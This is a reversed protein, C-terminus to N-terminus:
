VVKWKFESLYRSVIWGEEHSRVNVVREKETCWGVQDCKYYVQYVGSKTRELAVDRSLALQNIEYLKQGIKIWGDELTKFADDFLPYVGDIMDSFGKNELLIGNPYGPEKYYGGSIDSFNLQGATLGQHFQRRPLREVYIVRTKVDKMSIIEANMYGLEPCSIDLLPDTPKVEQAIIAHTAPHKMHLRNKSEVICYAAKGGYRVITNGIRAVLDNETEYRCPMREEFDM